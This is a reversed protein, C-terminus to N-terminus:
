EAESRPWEGSSNKILLVATGRKKLYRTTHWLSTKEPDDPTLDELYPSFLKEKYETIDDRLVKM